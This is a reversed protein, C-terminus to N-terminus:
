PLSEFAEVDLPFPFSFEIVLDSSGSGPSPLELPVVVENSWNNLPCLYAERKEEM